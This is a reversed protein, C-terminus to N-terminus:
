FKKITYLNLRELKTIVDLSEKYYAKSLPSDLWSYKIQELSKGKKILSAFTSYQYIDDSPNNPSYQEIPEYTTNDDSDTYNISYPNELSEDHQISLRGPLKNIIPNISISDIEGFDMQVKLVDSRNLYKEWVKEANESVIRRDSMLAGGKIVSVYELCVDYLLPGWTKDTLSYSVQWIPRGNALVVDDHYSHTGSIDSCEVSGKIGDFGLYKVTIYDGEDAIQIKFESYNSNFYLTEISKYIRNVTSENLFRRWTEVLLKTNSKMHM